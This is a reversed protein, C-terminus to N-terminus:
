REFYVRIIDQYQAPVQGQEVARRAQQVDIAWHDSKWPPLFSSPSAGVVDGAAAKSPGKGPTTRGAGGAEKGGPSANQADTASQSGKLQNPNPASTHSEGSGNGAGQDPKKSPNNAVSADNSQKQSAGEETNM